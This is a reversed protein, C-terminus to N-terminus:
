PRARWRRNVNRAPESSICIRLNQNMRRIAGLQIRKKSKGRIQPGLKVQLLGIQGQGTVEEQGSGLSGKEDAHVWM